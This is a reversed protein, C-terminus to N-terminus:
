ICELVSRLVLGLRSPSCDRKKRCDICRAQLPESTGRAEFVKELVERVIQTLGETGLEPNDSAM